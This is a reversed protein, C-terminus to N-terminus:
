NEVREDTFKNFPMPVVEFDANRCDLNDYASEADGYVVFDGVRARLAALHAVLKVIPRADFAACTVAPRDMEDASVVAAHDHEHDNSTLHSSSM